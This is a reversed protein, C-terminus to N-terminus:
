EQMYKNKASIYQTFNDTYTNKLNKIQKYIQKNKKYM